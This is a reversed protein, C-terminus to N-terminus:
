WIYNLTILYLLVRITKFMVLKDYTDQSPLILKTRLLKLGCDKILALAASRRLTLTSIVSVLIRKKDRETLFHVPPYKKNNRSCSCYLLPFAAVDQRFGQM